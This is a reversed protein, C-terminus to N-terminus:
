PCILQINQRERWRSINRNTCLLNWDHGLTFGPTSFASELTAATPPFVPHSSSREFITQSILELNLASRDILLSQMSNNTAKWALKVLPSHICLDMELVSFRELPEGIEVALELIDHLLRAGECISQQGPVSNQPLAVGTRTLSTYLRRPHPSNPDAFSMLNSNMNIPEYPSSVTVISRTAENQHMNRESQPTLRRAMPAPHYLCQQESLRRRVCRGCVPRGHDCRLKSKRCPECASLQGNRRVRDTMAFQGERRSPPSIAYQDM